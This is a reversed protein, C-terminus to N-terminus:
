VAGDVIGSRKEIWRCIEFKLGKQERVKVEEWDADEGLEPGFEFDNGESVVEIESDVLHIYKGCHMIVRKDWKARVVIRTPLEELLSVVNLIADGNDRGTAMGM